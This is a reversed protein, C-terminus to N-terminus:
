LSGAGDLEDRYENTARVLEALRSASKALARLSVAPVHSHWGGDLGMPYRFADGDPDLSDLLEVLTRVEGATAASDTSEGLSRQRELSAEVIRGFEDDQHNLRSLLKELGHEALRVNVALVFFDRARQRNARLYAVSESNTLKKKGALKAVGANFTTAFQERLGARTAAAKPDMSPDEFLAALFMEVQHNRLLCKLWLELGHRLSYLAGFIAFDSNGSKSLTQVNELYALAHDTFVFKNPVPKSVALDNGQRWLELLRAADSSLSPAIDDAVNKTM